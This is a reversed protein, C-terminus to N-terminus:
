RRGAHPGADDVEGRVKRRLDDGLAQEGFEPAVVAPRLDAVQAIPPHMQLRDGRGQRLGLAIEVQVRALRDPDGSARPPDGRQRRGLEGPPPPRRQQQDARRGQGAVDVVRPELRDRVRRVELRREVLLKAAGPALAGGRLDLLGVLREAPGALGARVHGRETDWRPM